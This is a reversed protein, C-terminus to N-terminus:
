FPGKTRLRYIYWNSMFRSVNNGMGSLRAGIVASIAQRMSAQSSNCATSLLKYQQTRQSKIKALAKQQDLAVIALGRVFQDIQEKLRTGDLHDVEIIRFNMTDHPAKFM